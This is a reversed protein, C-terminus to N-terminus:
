PSKDITQQCFKTIEAERMNDLQKKTEDNTAELTIEYSSREERLAERQQRKQARKNAKSATVTHTATVEAWTKATITPVAKMEMEINCVTQEIKMMRAHVTTAKALSDRIWEMQRLAQELEEIVTANTEKMAKVTVNKIQQEKLADVARKLILPGNDDFYAM